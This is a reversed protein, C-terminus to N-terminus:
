SVTLTKYRINTPAEIQERIQLRTARAMQDRRLGAPLGSCYHLKLDISDLRLISLLHPLFQDDGIFPAWEASPGQYRLAIAQVRRQSLQASQFLKGHFRLVQDGRTTTGEPFLILRQDRHLLWSMTECTAAVQLTDGRRIFLTGIGQALYGVLPWHAVDDKAIFKCPQRSGIAIIDLWSVHNAVLLGAGTDAQGTVHINLRLIRCVMQNWRLVLRENWHSAHRPSLHRLLPMLGGVAVIALVFMLAVLIGKCWLRWLAM